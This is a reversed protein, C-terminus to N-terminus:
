EQVQRALFENVEEASYSLQPLCDRNCDLGTSRSCAEISLSDDLGVAAPLKARPCFVVSRHM